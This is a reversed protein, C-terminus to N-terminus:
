AAIASELTRASWTARWWARMLRATRSVALSANKAMSSLPATVCHFEDASRSNPQRARSAIPRGTASRITGGSSRTLTRVSSSRKRRVPSLRSTPRRMSAVVTRRSPLSTGTSAVIEGSLRSPRQTKLANTRSMVARRRLWSWRWTWFATARAIASAAVASSARGRM